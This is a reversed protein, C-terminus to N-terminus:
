HVEDMPNSCFELKREYVASKPTMRANFPKGPPSYNTPALALNYYHEKLVRHEEDHISQIRM